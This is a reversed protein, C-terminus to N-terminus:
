NNFPFFSIKYANIAPFSVKAFVFIDLYFFNSFLINRLYLLPKSLKDNSNWILSYYYGKIDINAALEM